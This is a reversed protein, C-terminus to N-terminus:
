DDESTDSAARGCVKCRGDEGIVGVCNGDPCLARESFDGHDGDADQQVEGDHDDHRSWGEDSGASESADAPRGCLKCRGDEGIVGLCNGDSCLQRESLDLADNETEPEAEDEGRETPENEDNEDTPDM